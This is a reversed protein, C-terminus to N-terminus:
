RTPGASPPDPPVNPDSPDPQVVGTLRPLVFGLRMLGLGIVLFLAARWLTDVERLDVTLLKAVTVGLVVLGVTGAEPVKRVVGTLLVAVGVLVWSVSVIAQGQPLHVLVSGLWALLLVLAAVAGVRRVGDLRAQWLGGVLVALTVLRIVDGAWAADVAWADLSATLMTLAALGMLALGNAQVRRQADLRRALVILGVGQVALALFTAPTDLLAAFGISLTISSSVVLSVTHAETNWRRLGVAALAVVATAAFAAWAFERRGGIDGLAAVVLLAWPAVFVTAQVELQRAVSAPEGPEIAGPEIAAISPTRAFSAAAVVAVVAAVVLDVTVRRDVTGGAAAAAIAAVVGAVLHAILRLSYWREVTGLAVAGMAVVAAVVVSVVFGPDVEAILVIVAVAVSSATLAVVAVGETDIRRAVFMGGAAVALTLGVAIRADVQDLFLSSAFTVHLVILGAGCLAATWQPRSPRVRLGFTVLAVGFAVAAALQLEPGIWGRAIATSVAFVVALVVLVVGGWKLAAETDIASRRASAAPVPSLPRIPELPDSTPPRLPRPPPLPHAAPTPGPATAPAAAAVSTRLHRVESELDAVRQELRAM